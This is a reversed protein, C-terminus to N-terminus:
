LFRAPLETRRVPLAAGERNSYGFVRGREERVRMRTPVNKGTCRDAEGSRGLHFRRTDPRLAGFASRRFLRKTVMEATHAPHAATRSNSRWLHFMRESMAASSSVIVTV